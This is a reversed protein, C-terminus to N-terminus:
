AARPRWSVWASLYRSSTASGASPRSRSRATLSPFFVGESAARGHVPWTAPSIALVGCPARADCRPEADGTASMPLCRPENPLLGDIDRVSPHIRGASVIVQIVHRAPGDQVSSCRRTDRAARLPFCKQGSETVAHVTRVNGASFARSHSWIEYGPRSGGLAPCSVKM